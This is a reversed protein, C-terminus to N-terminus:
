HGPKRQFPKKVIAYILKSVAGMFLIGASIAGAMMLTQLGISATQDIDNDLLAVMTKFINNGPVLCLIGPIVFITTADKFIRSAVESLLGVLCSAAFCAIFTSNNYLVLIQYLVWGFAGILVGPAMIKVPVRFIICFGINSFVALFFQLMLYTM